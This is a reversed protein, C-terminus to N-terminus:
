TKLGEKAWRKWQFSRFPALEMKLQFSKKFFRNVSKLFEIPHFVLKLALFNAYWYLRVLSLYTYDGRWTPSFSIRSLDVEFRKYLESGPMPSIIFIAIEDIGLITYVRILYLSKVRDLLAESPMGLVFCAQTRIGLKRSWRILRLSHLINFRKGIEKRVSSSGSEPSFSFYRLGSAFLAKLTEYSDLTEAKTGAVIKWTISLNELKSSLDLMRQSNVSSNLDELHFETVGYKKISSQIESYIEQSDRPAWKRLNTAPVVCFTCGWPCGYSTLVPLYKEETLPGHALKYKWYNQIPFKDWNPVPHVTQFIDNPFSRSFSNIQDAPTGTIVSTVGLNEFYSKISALSYATVAQSNELLHIEVDPYLTRVEVLIATLDSHNAAQNAYVIISDPKSHLSTCALRLEKGFVWSNEYQSISRPAMGFLDLVEHELGLKSLGDSFYALGIPMYVIGTTFTDHKQVVLRPNILLIM